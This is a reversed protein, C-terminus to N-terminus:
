FACRELQPFAQAPSELPELHPMGDESRVRALDETRGWGARMKSTWTGRAETLGPSMTWAATLTDTAARSEAQTGGAREPPRQAETGVTFTGTLQYQSLRGTGILVTACTPNSGHQVYWSLTLLPSGNTPEVLLM